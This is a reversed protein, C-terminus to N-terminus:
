FNLSDQCSDSIDEGVAHVKPPPKMPAGDRSRKHCDRQLHNPKGCYHCVPRSGTRQPPGTSKANGSYGAKKNAYTPKGKRARIADVDEVDDIECVKASHGNAKANNEFETVLTRMQRLSDCEKEMIHDRARTSLGSYFLGMAMHNVTSHREWAREHQRVMNILVPDIAAFQAYQPHARIAESFYDDWAPPTPMSPLTAKWDKSEGAIKVYFENLSAGNRPQTLTTWHTFGKYIRKHANTFELFSEKFNAWTVAVHAVDDETGFEIHYWKEALERLATAAASCMAADSWGNTIALKEVRVIWHKPEMTDKESAYFLPVKSGSSEAALARAEAMIIDFDPDQRPRLNDEPNNPEETDGM